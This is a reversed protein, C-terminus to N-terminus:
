AANAATKAAIRPTRASKIGGQRAKGMACDAAQWDFNVGGLEDCERVLIGCVIAFIEQKKWRQLTRNLSKHNGFERPIAEWQCGTRLQYIIGNLAKRQDIRKRGIPAPPDFEELVESVIEWLEDPCRWITPLADVKRKTRAM